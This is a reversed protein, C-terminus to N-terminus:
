GVEMELGREFANVGAEFFAAQAGADRAFCVIERHGAVQPELAWRTFCKEMFASIMATPESSSVGKRTSVLESNRVEAKFLSPM